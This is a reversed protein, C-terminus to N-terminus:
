ESQQHKERDATVSPSPAILTVFDDTLQGEAQDLGVCAGLDLLEDAGIVLEGAETIGASPGIV